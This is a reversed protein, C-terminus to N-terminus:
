TFLVWSFNSSLRLLTWSVAIFKTKLYDTCSELVDRKRCLPNVKDGPIREQKHGTQNEARLKGLVKQVIWMIVTIIGLTCTQFVQHYCARLREKINCITRRCMTRFKGTFRRRYKSLMVQFLFSWLSLIRSSLTTLLATYFTVCQWDTVNLFQFNSDWLITFCTLRKWFLHCTISSSKFTKWRSFKNETSFNKYEFFFWLVDNSILRRDLVDSKLKNRDFIIKRLKLEYFNNCIVILLKNCSMM